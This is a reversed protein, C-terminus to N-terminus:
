RTGGLSTGDPGMTAALEDWYRAVCHIGLEYNSLSMSENPAHANDDPPAFGLMVVPLGLVTSFDAAVPISGGDRVYLPDRGFTAKLARAAARTAPHDLPMTFPRGAYPHGVTVTVGVRVAFRSPSTGTLALM